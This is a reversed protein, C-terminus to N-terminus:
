FILAGLGVGIGILAIIPVVIILIIFCKFLGVLLDLIGKM